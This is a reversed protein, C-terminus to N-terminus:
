FLNALYRKYGALIANLEPRRNENYDVGLRQCEEPTLGKTAIRIADELNPTSAKSRPKIPNLAFSCASMFEFGGGGESLNIEIIQGMQDSSAKCYKPNHTSGNIGMAEGFEDGGDGSGAFHPLAAYIPKREGSKFWWAM